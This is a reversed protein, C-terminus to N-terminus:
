QNDGFIPPPPPSPLDFPEENIPRNLYRLLLWSAFISAGIAVVTIPGVFMTDDYISESWGLFAIGMGLLFGAGLTVILQAGIFVVAGIAAWLLGNRGNEKARRYALIATIIAFIMKNISRGALYDGTFPFRWLRQLGVTRSDVVDRRRVNLNLKLRIVQKGDIVKDAINQRVRKM